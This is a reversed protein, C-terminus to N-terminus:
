QWHKKQPPPILSSCPATNTPTGFTFGDGKEFGGRDIMDERIVFVFVPDQSQSLSATSRSTCNMNKRYFFPAPPSQRPPLRSRCGRWALSLRQFATKEACGSARRLGTAVACTLALTGCSHDHGAIRHPRAGGCARTRALLRRPLLGGRRRALWHLAVRRCPGHGRALLRWWTCVVPACAGRCVVPACAGRWVCPLRALCRAARLGPLWNVQARDPTRTRRPM